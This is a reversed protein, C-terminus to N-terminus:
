DHNRLEDIANALIRITEPVWGTVQESEAFQNGKFWKNISGDVQERVTQKEPLRLRDLLSTRQDRWTQSLTQYGITKDLLDLAEDRQDYASKSADKKWKSM